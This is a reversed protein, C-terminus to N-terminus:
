YLEKPLMIFIRILIVQPFMAIIGPKYRLAYITVALSGASVLTEGIDLHKTEKLAVFADLGDGEKLKAIFPKLDINKELIDLLALETSTTSHSCGMQLTLIFYLFLFLLLDVFVATRIRM